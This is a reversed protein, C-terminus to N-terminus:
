KWFFLEEEWNLEVKMEFISKYLFEFLEEFVM